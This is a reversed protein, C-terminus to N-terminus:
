FKQTLSVYFVNNDVEASDYSGISHAWDFRFVTDGVNFLGSTIEAGLGASYFHDDEVSGAIRNYVAGGDLFPGFAVTTGPLDFPLIHNYELSFSYGKEGAEQAVDFGRMSGYGGVTFLDSSLLIDSVIQGRILAKITGNPSFPRLNALLVPEFIWAEQDGRARTAQSAGVNNAGFVDIGKSLKVGAFYVSNAGRHLYSANLYLKRMNDKTDSINNLFSEHRRGEFGFNVSIQRNRTNLLKSSLEVALVDTKGSADLNKLRGGIDNKSHFYSIELKLNKFGIPLLLGAGAGWLDDESRRYDASFKEGMKLLNSYELHASAVKEGTLDSGYNNISVSNVDDQIESLEIDLDTTSLEKGPRLNLRARVDELDNLDSVVSELDSETIVDGQGMRSAISKALWPRVVDSNHISIEGIKAEYITVNLVGKSFDQPPTVVHVLIYGRDYYIKKVDYKLKALDGKTFSKGIYDAVARQLTNEDIVSYGSFAVSKLTSLVNGSEPVDKIAPKQELPEGPPTDLSHSPPIETDPLSKDIVGPLREVQAFVIGAPIFLGVLLIIAM